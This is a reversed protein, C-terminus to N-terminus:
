GAQKLACLALGTAVSTLEGGSRLRDPSFKQEFVHQVAPVFSTGGTMFISDVDRPAVQCQALLGDICDGIQRLYRDIWTEFTVRSVDREIAVPPEDFRFRDEHRASLTLKTREVSRYLQYGLDEDIVHLLGDIKEPELSQARIAQLTSM